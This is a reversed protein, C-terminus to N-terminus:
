THQLPTSCFNVSASYEIRLMIKHGNFLVRILGGHGYICHQFSFPVLNIHPPFSVNGRLFSLSTVDNSSHDPCRYIINKSIPSASAIPDNEKDEQFEATPVAIVKILVIRIKVQLKARIEAVSIAFLLLLKM